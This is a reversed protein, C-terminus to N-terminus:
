ASREEMEDFFVQEEEQIRNKIDKHKPSEYASDHIKNRKMDKKKELQREMKDVVFDLAKYMNDASAKAFFDFKPGHIKIEALHEENHVWCTWHVNVNGTFYKDFKESKEKIRQDLAPTHDLHKFSIKLKM